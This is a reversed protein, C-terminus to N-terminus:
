ELSILGAEIMGPALDTGTYCLGEKALWYALSGDGCCLELVTDGAQLNTGWSLVM